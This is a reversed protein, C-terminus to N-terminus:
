DVAMGRGFHRDPQGPRGAALGIPLTGPYRGRLDCDIASGESLQPLRGIFSSSTMTVDHGRM